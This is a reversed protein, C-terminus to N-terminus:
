DGRGNRRRSWKMAPNDLLRLAAPIHPILPELVAIRAEIELLKSYIAANSVDVKALGVDAGDPTM